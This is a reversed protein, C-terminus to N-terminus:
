GHVHSCRSLVHALADREAATVSLQWRMKVATWMRAYDCRFAPDDPLWDAPNRGARQRVAEPLTVIMTWADEQDSAYAMRWGSPWFAGGSRMVEALPVLHVVVFDRATRGTRGTVPDRWFGSVVRCGELGVDSLSQRWLVHDRVPLCDHHPNNPLHPFGAVPSLEDAPEAIMGDGSVPLAELHRLEIAPVPIGHLPIAEQRDPGIASTGHAPVPGIPLWHGAIRGLGLALSAALMSALVALLLLLLSARKVTRHGTRGRAQKQAKRLIATM